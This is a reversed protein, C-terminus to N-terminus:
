ERYLSKSNMFAKRTHYAEEPTIGRINWKRVNEYTDEPENDEMRSKLIGICPHGTNIQIVPECELDCIVEKHLTNGYDQGYYCDDPYQFDTVETLRYTPYNVAPRGLKSDARYQKYIIQMERLMKLPNALLRDVIESSIQRENALNDVASRFLEDFRDVRIILCPNEDSQENAINGLSKRISLLGSIVNQM